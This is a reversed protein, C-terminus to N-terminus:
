FLSPFGLGGRKERSRLVKEVTLHRRKGKARRLNQSQAHPTRKTNYM